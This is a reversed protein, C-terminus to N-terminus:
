ESDSRGRGHLRDNSTDSLDGTIVWRKGDQKADVSLGQAILDRILATATDFGYEAEIRFHQTLGTEGSTNRHAADTKPETM